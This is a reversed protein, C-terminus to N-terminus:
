RVIFRNVTTLKTIRITLCTTAITTVTNTPNIAVSYSSLDSGESWWDIM